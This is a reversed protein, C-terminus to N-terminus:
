VDQVVSLKRIKKRRVHEVMDNKKKERKKIRQSM